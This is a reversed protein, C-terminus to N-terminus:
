KTPKPEPLIPPTSDVYELWHRWIDHTRADAMGIKCGLEMSGRITGDKWDEFVTQCEISRYAEFAKQSAQIGLRVAREDDAEYKHLAAQLYRDLRDNAQSLKNALCANVAVTTGSNDCLRESPSIQLLAAALILDLVRSGEM